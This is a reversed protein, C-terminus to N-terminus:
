AAQLHPENDLAPEDFQVRPRAPSQTMRRMFGDDFGGRGPRAESRVVDRLEEAIMFCLKPLLQEEIQTTVLKQVFFAEEVRRQEDQFMTELANRRDIGVPVAQKSWAAIKNPIETQLLQESEELRGNRRLVCAERFQEVLSIWLPDNTFTRNM